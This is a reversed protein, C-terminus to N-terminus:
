LRTKYPLFRLKLDMPCVVGRALHPSSDLNELGLYSGKKKLVKRTWVSPNGHGASSKKLLHAFM